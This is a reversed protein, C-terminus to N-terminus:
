DSFADLLDAAHKEEFLDAASAVDPTLSTGGIDLLNNNVLFKLKSGGSDSLRDALNNVGYNSTFVASLSNTYIHDIIQEWLQQEKESLKKNTIGDFLYLKYNSDLLEDFIKNGEFGRGAMGFIAVESIMKIQSPGVFGRAIMARLIAYALWSKGTGPGGSIYFSSAKKGNKIVDLAHEAAKKAQPSNDIKSLRADRWRDVIKSDWIKLNYQIKKRNKDRETKAFRDDITKQFEKFSDFDTANHNIFRFEDAGMLHHLQESITEMNDSM